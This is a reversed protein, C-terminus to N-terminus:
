QEVSLLGPNGAEALSLCWAVHRRRVMEEDTSSAFHERAFDHVSSLMRFRSGAELDPETVLLSQRVLSDIRDVVSIAGAGNTAPIPDDLVAAAAELTFGGAFV